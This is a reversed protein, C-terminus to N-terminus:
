LDSLKRDMPLEYLRILDALDSDRWTPYFEKAYSLFYGVKMWGPLRQSESVFGIQSREQASLARSDVGLIEARGSTPRYINLLTRLATTKGAGNAGTLAFVAGQPVELTLRHLVEVRRFSKTLLETLVPSKM